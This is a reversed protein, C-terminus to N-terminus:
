MNSCDRSFAREDNGAAKLDRIYKDVLATNISPKSSKTRAVDDDGEMPFVFSDEMAM